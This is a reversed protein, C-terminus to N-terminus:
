GNSRWSSRQCAAPISSTLHRRRLRPPPITMQPCLPHADLRAGREVRKRGTAPTVVRRDQVRRVREPVEAVDHDSRCESRVPPWAPQDGREGPEEEGDADPRMREVLEVTPRQRRLNGVPHEHEQGAARDGDGHTDPDAAGEGVIEPQEREDCGPREDDAGVVQLEEASAQM